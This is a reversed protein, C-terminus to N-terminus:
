KVTTSTRLTNNAILNLLHLNQKQSYQIYKKYFVLAKQTQNKNISSEIKYICMKESKCDDSYNCGNLFILSCISLIFIKYKFEILM